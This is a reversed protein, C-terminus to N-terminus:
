APPRWTALISRLSPRHEGVLAEGGTHPPPEAAADLGLLGLRDKFALGQVDPQTCQAYLAQAM